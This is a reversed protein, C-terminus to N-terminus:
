MVKPSVTTIVCDFASGKVREDHSIKTLSHITSSEFTQFTKFSQFSQFSFTGTTGVTGITGLNLLPETALRNSLFNHDKTSM